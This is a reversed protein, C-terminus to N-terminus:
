LQIRKISLGTSVVLEFSFREVARVIVAVIFSATFVFIFAELIDDLSDCLSM